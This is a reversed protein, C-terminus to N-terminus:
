PHKKKHKAPSSSVFHRETARFRVGIPPGLGIRPVLALPVLLRALHAM